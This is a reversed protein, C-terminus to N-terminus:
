DPKIEALVVDVRRAGEESPVTRLEEIRGAERIDAEAVGIRELYPPLDHVTVLTAPVRLSVKALAKEKRM